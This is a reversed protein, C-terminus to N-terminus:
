DPIADLIGDLPVDPEAHAYLADDDLHWATINVAHPLETAHACRCVMAPLLMALAVAFRTFQCSVRLM